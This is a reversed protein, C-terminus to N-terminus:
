SVKIIDVPEDGKFGGISPILEGPIKFVTLLGLIIFYSVFLVTISLWKDLLYKSLKM